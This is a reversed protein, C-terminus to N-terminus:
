TSFVLGNNSIHESPTVESKDDSCSVLSTAMIAVALITNLFKM